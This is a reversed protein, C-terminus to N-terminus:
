ANAVALAGLEFGGSGFNGIAELQPQAGLTVQDDIQLRETSSLFTDPPTIGEPVTISFTSITGPAGPATTFAIKDLLYPSTSSPANLVIRFRLDTYTSNLATAVTAPIQFSVTRFGGPAMGILSASGLDQWNIGRSPINVLARTEGWSASAPVQIDYNLIGGVAGLSSMQASTIETWGSVRVGLSASGESHTSSQSIIGTPSSWDTTPAEFGLVRQQSATLAATAQVAYDGSENSASEDANSCGVSVACCALFLARARRFIVSTYAYLMM